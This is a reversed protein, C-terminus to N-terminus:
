LRHVLRGANPRFRPNPLSRYFEKNRNVADAAIGACSTAGLYRYLNDDEPHDDNVYIHPIRVWPNEPNNCYVNLPQSNGVTNVPYYGRLTHSRDGVNIAIPNNETTIWWLEKTRDVDQGQWQATMVEGDTFPITSAGVMHLLTPMIDLGSFTANQPVYGAPIGPGRVVLPVRIGGNLINNKKGRFMGTVGWQDNSATSNGNTLPGNDSTVILITDNLVGADALCDYVQGVLQDADWIAAFYRQATSKREDTTLTDFQNNEALHQVAAMGAASPFLPYHPAALSLNVIFPNAAAAQATIFDCTRTAMISDRTRQWAPRDTQALALDTPDPINPNHYSWGSFEDLGYLFHVNFDNDLGAHWKGHHACSYGCQDKLERYITPLDDPIGEANNYLLNTSANPHITTFIGDKAPDRGTIFGYRSPSCVSSPVYYREASMGERAIRTINPTRPAAFGNHQFDMFASDDLVIKVINKKGVIQGPGASEVPNQEDYAFECAANELNGCSLIITTM